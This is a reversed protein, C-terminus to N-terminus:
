IAAMTFGGGVVMSETDANGKATTQAVARLAPMIASLRAELAEILVSVDEASLFRVDIEGQVLRAVKSAGDLAFTNLFPLVSICSAIHVADGFDDNNSPHADLGAERVVRRIAQKIHHDLLSDPVEASLNAFARVSAATDATM